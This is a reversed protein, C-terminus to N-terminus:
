PQDQLSNGLVAVEDVCAQLWDRGAARTPEDTQKVRDLCDGAVVGSWQTLFRDRLEPHGDEALVRAVAEEIAGSVALLRVQQLGPEQELLGPDQGRMLEVSHAIKGFWQRLRAQREALVSELQELAGETCAHQTPNRCGPLRVARYWARLARIQGIYELNSRLVRKVGRYLGQRFPTAGGRLPPAVYLRGEELADGRWVSGAAIVAGYAVRSPGVLGGQGGLFIPVQDVFVGRPVDGVLSATAKDGQPTFNFHVYSSGVESHNKRDTGGAMLVDCFNILSGLTVYPLLITQKLGVAHAASAEEELITGPRVHAGSGSSSRDLFVAGEFYGGKLKVKAGLRCQRLTAPTEEGLVCDPGIWTAAGSVRCGPHIVSGPAVREPDVDTDVWVTHPDPMRVGRDLLRRVAPSIQESMEDRWDNM